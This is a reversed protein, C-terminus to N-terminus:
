RRMERWVLAASMAAWVAALGGWTVAYGFHDNPLNVSVPDPIPWRGTAASTATPTEAVVLVPEAGWLPALSNLSRTLWVNDAPGAGEDAFWDADQPWRLAGVLAIEGEPAPLPLAARGGDNKAAVPAFGRDVLVLRGEVTEFPQVIRYGAGHPRLTTLYAADAFGHAGVAGTFRGTLAVRRFEDAAPDPAAPLPVPAAALREELTAILAEKWALRRIQWTMLGLLIAVGVAGFALAGLARGGFVSPRRVAGGRGATEPSADSM